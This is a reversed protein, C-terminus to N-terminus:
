MRCNLGKVAMLYKIKDLILTLNLWTDAIANGGTAKYTINCEGTGRVRCSVAADELVGGAEAPVTKAADAKGLVAFNDRIRCGAFFGRCCKPSRLSKSGSVTIRGRM